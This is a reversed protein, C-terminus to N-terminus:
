KACHHRVAPTFSLALVVVPMAPMFLAEVKSLGWPLAWILNLHMFSPISQVLALLVLVLLLLWMDHSGHGIGRAVLVPILCFGLSLAISIASFGFGGSSRGILSGLLASTSTNVVVWVLEALLLLALIYLSYILASLTPTPLDFQFEGVFSRQQPTDAGPGTNLPTYSSM